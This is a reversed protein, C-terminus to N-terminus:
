FTYRKLKASYLSIAILRRNAPEVVAIKASNIALKQQDRLKKDYTREWTGCAFVQSLFYGNLAYFIFYHYAFRKASSVANEESHIIQNSIPANEIKLSYEVLIKILLATSTLKIFQTLLEM